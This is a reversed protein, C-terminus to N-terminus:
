DSTISVELAYSARCAEASSPCIEKKQVPLGPWDGSEVFVRQTVLCKEAGLPRRSDSMDSDGSIIIVHINGLRM